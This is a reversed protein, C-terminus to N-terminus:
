RPLGNPPLFIEIEAGTTTRRPSRIATDGGIHTTFLAGAEHMPQSNAARSQAHHSAARGAAATQPSRIEM